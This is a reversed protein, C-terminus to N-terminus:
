CEQPNASIPRYNSTHLTSLFKRGEFSPRHKRPAHASLALTNVLASFACIKRLRYTSKPSFACSKPDARWDSHQALDPHRRFDAPQKSSSNTSSAAAAGSFNTSSAPAGFFTSFYFMHTAQQYSPTISLAHPRDSDAGWLIQSREPSSKPGTKAYEHAIGPGGSGHQPWRRPATNPWRPIRRHGESGDQGLRHECVFEMLSYLKLLANNYLVM